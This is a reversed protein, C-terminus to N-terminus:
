VELFALYKYTEAAQGELSSNSRRDNQMVGEWAHAEHEQKLENKDEEM